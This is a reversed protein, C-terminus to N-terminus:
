LPRGLHAIHSDTTVRELDWSGDLSVKTALTDFGFAAFPQIPALKINMIRNSSLVVENGFPSSQFIKGSMSIFLSFLPFRHLERLVYLLQTLISWVDSRTDQNTLTQAEDFALIILPYEDETIMSVQGTQSAAKSQDHIYSVNAQKRAKLSEVLKYCAASPPFGYTKGRNNIPGRPDEQFAKTQLRVQPLSFM